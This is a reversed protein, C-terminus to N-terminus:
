IHILSLSDDPTAVYVFGAKRQSAPLRQIEWQVSEFPLHYLKTPNSVDKCRLSILGRYGSQLVAEWSDWSAATNGFRGAQLDRYMQRKTRVEM